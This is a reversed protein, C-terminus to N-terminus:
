KSRPRRNNCQQQHNVWRCNSPSYGLDNNARDVELTESYGHSMAWAHFPAFTEWGACVTIGRGGYYPYSDVNKNTCRTHMGKWIQYLRTGSQGHTRARNGTTEKRVCGCSTTAGNRLCTLRVATYQGCSCLLSFMRFERNGDSIPAVERVVTLNGFVHGTQIELRRM